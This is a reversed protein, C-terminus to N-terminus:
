LEPPSVIEIQGHGLLANVLNILRRAKLNVLHQFNWSVLLPIQHVVAIAVHLADDRYKGPVASKQLYEDALIEAEATIALVSFSGVLDELNERRDRDPTDRIEGLVLVSIFAEYSPLREWFGQTLRQRDPTRGDFFASPVTTDIYVRQM